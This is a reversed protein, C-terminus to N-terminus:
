NESQRIRRRFNSAPGSSKSKRYVPAEDVIAEEGVYGEQESEGGGSSEPEYGGIKNVVSEGLNLAVDSVETPIGYKAGLMQLAPKAIPKAFDWVKSVTRAVPQIIKEKVFNFGKKFLDGIKSFLGPAM